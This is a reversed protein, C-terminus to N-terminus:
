EIKQRVLRFGLILYSFEPEHRGRDTTRVWSPMSYWGGGRIVRYTGWLPGIPNDKEGFSYNGKWDQCWEWVNGSMDYIGLGNPAKTGVAHTTPGSNDSYWAVKEIDNGGSYIENKGGSRAAYEWQAETPLSFGDGIKEIFMQCGFWSVSEVPCGKGCNQFESPNNGMVKTWQEQTVEYKGIWFGDLCVKHVPMENLNGSYSGMMFCGGPVWVFEMGTVPEIWVDGAQNESGLTQTHAFSITTCYIFFSFLIVWIKKKMFFGM